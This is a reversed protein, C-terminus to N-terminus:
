AARRRVNKVESKLTDALDEPDSDELHREHGMMSLSSDDLDKWWTEPIFEAIRM